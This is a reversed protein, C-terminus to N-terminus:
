HHHKQSSSMSIELVETNDSFTLTELKDNVKINVTNTQALWIDRLANHVVRLGDMSDLMPTEQYVWFHKGDMEFGILELPVQKGDAFYIGFRDTVYKAFKAQTTEDQYINASGGFIEQVAHEADHAEFRHMVELMKTRPNLELKTLAAKIQHAALPTAVLLVGLLFAVFSTRIATKTM